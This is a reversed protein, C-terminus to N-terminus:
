FQLSDHILFSEIDRELKIIIADRLNIGIKHAILFVKLYILHCTFLIDTGSNFSIWKYNKHANNNTRIKYYIFQEVLETNNSKIVVTIRNVICMIITGLRICKFPFHEISEYIVPLWKEINKHLKKKTFEMRNKEFKIHSIFTTRASDFCFVISIQEWAFDKWSTRSQLMNQTSHQLHTRCKWALLLLFVITM